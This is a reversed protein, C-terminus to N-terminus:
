RQDSATKDFAEDPLEAEPIEQCLYKAYWAIETNIKFLRHSLKRFNHPEGKAIYLETKAGAAKAGRHMLISQTPPVRVDKEGAWFLTPTTIKHSQYLPSQKQYTRLPARKQWPTGGFNYTRNHRVDSEGYMSVWDAAGAGSSAAKFRDTETILWNVMHGGASWGQKLLQNPDALGDEILADIGSIVDKDANTFYGGVMDRMFKDGYGTGGRHNPLFVGYGQGAYVSVARSVNWAGFQSSSRPGGHTITVLPFAEGEVYNLPYVLLGELKQGGRGRWHFAEQKPLAKKANFETYEDTLRTIDGESNLTYIDGPNKASDLTFIHLDLSGEYRWNKVVHDGEILQTLTKNAFDYRYLQSRLGTNGLMFISQDQAAWAYSQMEMPLKPLILDEKGTLTDVVFLNDEYYGEGKENVTSIYALKMGSPSLKVRSESHDNDTLQREAGNSLHRIWLEANHRDSSLGGTAKTYLIKRQDDSVDYGRVFFEGTLVTKSELTKTDFFRVELANPRDYPNIAETLKKVAKPREDDPATRDTRFYFGSGNEAWEIDQIDEPESTLMSFQQTRIEYYWAQKRKSNKADSKRKLLTIFGLSDPSWYARNYSEGDEADFLTLETQTKLDRLVYRKITKDEEWDPQSRLYILYDGNPSMAPSSLRKLEVMDVPTMATPGAASAQFGWFSFGLILFKSWFMWHEFYAILINKRHSM